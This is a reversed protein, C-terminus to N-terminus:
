FCNVFKAVPLIYYWSVCIFLKKIYCCCIYQCSPWQCVKKWLLSFSFFILPYVCSSLYFLEIIYFKFKQLFIFVSFAAVNWAYPNTSNINQFHGHKWFRKVYDICNWNKKVSIFFFTINVNMHCISSWLSGFHNQM